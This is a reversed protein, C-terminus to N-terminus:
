CLKVLRHTILLGILIQKTAVFTVILVQKESILSIFQFTHILFLGQM